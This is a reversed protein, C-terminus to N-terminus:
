ECLFCTLLDFTLCKRSHDILYLNETDNLPAPFTNLHIAKFPKFFHFSKSTNTISGTFLSCM